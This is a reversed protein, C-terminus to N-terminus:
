VRAFAKRVEEEVSEYVSGPAAAKESMWCDLHGLDPFTKRTVTAGRAKLIRYTKLTSGPRYVNNDAGSFLLIPIDRLRELNEQTLISHYENNLVEQQRGSRALFGLMHASTGGFVHHLNDHTAKNLNDHNWLRRFALNCRHCVTSTCIERTSTLPYFRLLADLTHQVLNQTISYRDHDDQRGISLPSWDGAIM